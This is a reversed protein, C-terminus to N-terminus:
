NYPEAATLAGCSHACTLSAPGSLTCASMCVVEAAVIGATAANLEFLAADLAANRKALALDYRNNYSNVAASVRLNFSRNCGAVCPPVNETDLYFPPTLGPVKEQAFTSSGSMGLSLAFMVTILSYRSNLEKCRAM